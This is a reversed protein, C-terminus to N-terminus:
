TFSEPQGAGLPAFGDHPPRFRRPAIAQLGLRRMQGRVAFRGAKVDEAKLQAAIRRSGYRRRHRYFVEKVREGTEAKKASPTHSEGRVYAHYASKSVGMVRCLIGLPYNIKEAKIFRYRV